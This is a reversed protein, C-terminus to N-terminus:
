KVAEIEKKTPCRKNFLGGIRIGLVDLFLHGILARISQEPDDIPTSEPNKWNLQVYYLPGNHKEVSDEVQTGLYVNHEPTIGEVLHEGDNYKRVQVSCGFRKDRKNYVAGLDFSRNTPQFNQTTADPVNSKPVILDPKETSNGISSGSYEFQRVLDKYIDQWSKLDTRLKTPM